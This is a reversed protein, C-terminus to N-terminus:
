IIIPYIESADEIKQFYGYGPMGNKVFNSEAKVSSIHADFFCVM